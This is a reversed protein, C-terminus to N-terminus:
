PGVLERALDSPRDEPGPLAVPAAERAQRLARFTRARRSGPEEGPPPELVAELRRRLAEPLAALHPPRDPLLGLLIEERVGAALDSWRALTAGLPEELTAVPMGQVRQYLGLERAAAAARAQAVPGPRAPLDLGRRLVALVAADDRPMEALRRWRGELARLTGRLFAQAPADGGPALDEVPISMSAVLMPDILRHVLIAGFCAATEVGPTGAGGRRVEREMLKALARVARVSPALAAGYAAVLDRRGAPAPAAHLTYFWAEPRRGRFFEIQALGKLHGGGIGGPAALVRAQARATEEVAFRALDGVAALGPAAVAEGLHAEPLSLNRAVWPTLREREDGRPDPAAFLALVPPAGMGRAEGDLAWLRARDERSLEHDVARLERLLPQGTTWARAAVPDDPPPALVEVWAEALRVSPHVEVRAPAASAPPPRPAGGPTASWWLGAGTLVIVLFAAVGRRADQPSAEQAPSPLDGAAMSVAAAATPAAGPAAVVETAVERPKPGLGALDRVRRAADRASAPRDRVEKAMLQRVFADVPAPVDVGADRLSPVPRVLHAQMVESLGHADDFPHRGALMVWLMVGFSYLDAGEDLTELRFNEPSAYTPTCPVEGTGTIGDAALTDKVLGLDLLVGRGEETVLVNAPKVDRHLLGVEHLAALGELVDLAIPALRDWRLRGTLGGTDLLSRGPVYAFELDLEGGEPGPSRVALLRVVNPHDLKQLSRVEVEVRSASWREGDVVIRKRVRLEGGPLRVLAVEGSAGRGLLRVVERDPTPRPDGADHGM